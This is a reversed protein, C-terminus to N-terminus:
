RRKEKRMKDQKTLHYANCYPCRYYYRLIGKAANDDILCDARAKSLKTKRLCTRWKHWEKADM